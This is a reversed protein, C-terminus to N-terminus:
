SLPVFAKSSPSQLEREPCESYSVARRVGDTVLVGATPPIVVGEIVGLQIGATTSLARFDQNTITINGQVIGNNVSPSAVVIRQQPGFKLTQSVPTLLLRQNPLLESITASFIGRDNTLVLTDRKPTLNIEDIDIGVRVAVTPQPVGQPSAIIGSIITPALTAQFTGADVNRERVAVTRASPTFVYGALSPTIVYTASTVNTFRFDGNPSSIATTDQRLNTQLALSLRVESVPIRATANLVIDGTIIYRRPPKPVMLFDQAITTDRGAIVIPAFRGPAVVARTATESMYLEYAGDPV